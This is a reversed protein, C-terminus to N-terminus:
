GYLKMEVLRIECEEQYEPHHYFGIVEIEGDDDVYKNVHRVKVGDTEWQSLLYQIRQKTDEEDEPNLRIGAARIDSVCVSGEDVLYIGMGREDAMEFYVNEKHVEPNGPASYGINVVLMTETKTLVGARVLIFDMAKLGREIAKKALEFDNVSHLTVPNFGPFLTGKMLYKQM